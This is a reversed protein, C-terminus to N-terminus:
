STGKYPRHLRHRALVGPWRAPSWSAAVPQIWRSGSGWTLLFGWAGRELGQPKPPERYQDPGVHCRIELRNEYNELNTQLSELGLFSSSTPPKLICSKTLMYCGHTSCKSLLNHKSAEFCNFNKLNSTEGPFGPFDVWYDNNIPNM